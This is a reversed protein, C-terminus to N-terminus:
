CEATEPNATWNNFKHAADQASSFRSKEFVFQFGNCWVHLRPDNEYNWCIYGGDFFIHVDDKHNLNEARCGASDFTINM